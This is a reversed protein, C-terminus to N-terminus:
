GAAQDEGQEVIGAQPMVRKKKRIM